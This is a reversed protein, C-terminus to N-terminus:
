RRSPAANRTRGDPTVQFKLKCGCAAVTCNSGPRGLERCPHRTPHAPALAMTLTRRRALVQCVRKLRGILPELDRPMLGPPEMHFKIAGVPVALAMPWHRAEFAQM